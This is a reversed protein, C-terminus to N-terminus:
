RHTRAAIFRAQLLASNFQESAIVQQIQEITLKGDQNALYLGDAVDQILENSRRSAMCGQVLNIAEAGLSLLGLAPHSLSGVTGGAILGSKVLNWFTEIQKPEPTGRQRRILSM